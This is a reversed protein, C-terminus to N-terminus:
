LLLEERPANWVKRITTQTVSQTALPQVLKTNRDAEINFTKMTTNSNIKELNEKNWMIKYEKKISALDDIHMLGAEEQTVGPLIRFQSERSLNKNMIKQYKSADQERRM